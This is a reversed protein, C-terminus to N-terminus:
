SRWCSLLSWGCRTQTEMLPSPAKSSGTQELEMIEAPREHAGAYGGHQPADGKGAGKNLKPQFGLFLMAFVLAWPTLLISSCGGWVAQSCHGHPARGAANQTGVLGEWCSSSALSTVAQGWQSKVGAGSGRSWSHSTYVSAPPSSGSGSGRETLRLALVLLVVASM